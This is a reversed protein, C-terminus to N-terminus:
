SSIKLKYLEIFDEYEIKENVLTDVMNKFESLDYLVQKNDFRLNIKSDSAEKNGIVCILPYGKVLLTRINKNITNSDKLVEVRFGKLMNKVKNTYENSALSVIGIQRPNLWFPLKKGFSEILIAIFREVSGLIARHIIVPTHSNGDSSRYRLKFRQPLQFDLQITACQNKRGLADQLVIDIKPGYFAGDGENLTYELNSEKIASELAKEAEDWESVEGIFKEPRTSLFLEFKFKFINYVHKLFDLCSKIEDKVQEKTCFIHADDQQFRRVRTLGTLAGSLENRHLVGFDAYRIPLERFSHDISKFMMCHGPCNMPKMAMSDNELMFMNDKYNDYHGSEKWLDVLFINPTIVEEFGRKLYEKRLFDILKNYLYTGNPLFFCSGPSYEHFFFLDLERGLRRHDKKLAEERKLLYDNLMEKTPFTIAYIRQLQKQTNDNLFYASSNKLIKVAKVAGTSPIHPGACLDYFDGNKYVTSEEKVKNTVFHAKFENDKYLDLLEDKSMSVREFKQNKKMIKKMEAEIMKYDDQSIPRDIDIDYFFGEETPPGNVLKCSPFLNTLANGLIHASSHWFINKADEFTYFSIRCSKLIMGSLDVFKDNHKCIIIDKLDKAYMNLFDFGTTREEVQFLDSKYTVNLVKSM